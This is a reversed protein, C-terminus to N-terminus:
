IHIYRAATGSRSLEGLLMNIWWSRMAIEPSEWEEGRKREREKKERERERERDKERERM